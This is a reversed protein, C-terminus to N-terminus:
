SLRIQEVCVSCAKTGVGNRQCGVGVFLGGIYGKDLIGIFGMVQNKETLVYTDAIPLYTDKVIYYNKEWYAKPIFQHAKIVSNKWIRMVQNLQESDPNFKQIM